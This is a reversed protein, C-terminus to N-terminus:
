LKGNVYKQSTSKVNLISEKEEPKDLVIFVFLIQNAEAEVVLPKVLKKNFRGDSMIFCIQQMDRTGSKKAEKLVDITERMFRVLDQKIDVCTMM